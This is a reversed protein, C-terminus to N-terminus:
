GPGRPRARPWRFHWLGHARGEGGTNRGLAIGLMRAIELTWGQNIAAHPGNGGAGAPYVSGARIPGLFPPLLHASPGPLWPPASTSFRPAPGPTDAPDTDLPRWSLDGLTRPVAEEGWGTRSLGGPTGPTPSWGQGEWRPGQPGRRARQSLNWRSHSVRHLGWVKMPDQGRLCGPSDQDSGGKLPHAFQPGGPANMHGPTGAPASWSLGGAGRSPTTETRRCIPRKRELVSPPQRGRPNHERSRRPAM